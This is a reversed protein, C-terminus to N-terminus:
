PALEDLGIRGVKRGALRCARHLAEELTAGGAMADILGANFVDGAGLTDLVQPPPYAPSRYRTGDHDEGFAGDAGWACVLVSEPALARAWALTQGADGHNLAAAFSRGIVIVDALPVLQEIGPRLKELELSIPQDVHERQVRELMSKVAAVNRGEFHFWDYSPLAIEAFDDVAFEPLNRWHMITRSGTAANRLIYSTPTDGYHQVCHGLRLGREALLAALADGEAGDALVAALDAYHGLQALVYLMNAANGGPAVARTQVRQESDQLPFQQMTLIVDLGATGVALIQSM